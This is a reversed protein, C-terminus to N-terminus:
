LYSFFYNLNNSVLYIHVTLFLVSHLFVSKPNDLHDERYILNLFDTM